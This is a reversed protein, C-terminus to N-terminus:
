GFISKVGGWLSGILTPKPPSPQSINQASPNTTSTQTTNSALTDVLFDNVNRIKDRAAQSVSVNAPFAETPNDNADFLEPLRYSARVRDRNRGFIFLFQNIIDEKVQKTGDYSHLKFDLLGAEKLKTEYKSIVYNYQNLTNIDVGLINDLTFYLNGEDYSKYLETFLLETVYKTDDIKIFFPIFVDATGPIVQWEDDFISQFSKKIQHEAYIGNLSFETSSIKEYFGYNNQIESLTKM